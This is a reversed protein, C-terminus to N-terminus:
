VQVRKFWRTGKVGDKVQSVVMCGDKNLYRWGVIGKNHITTKISITGGEEEWVSSAEVEGNESTTKFKIGDINAKVSHSRGGPGGSMIVKMNDGTHDITQKTRDVGYNMAWAAQKAVWPVNMATLFDAMGEQRCCLWQGSFNPKETLIDDNSSEVNQFETM